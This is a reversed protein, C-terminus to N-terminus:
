WHTIKNKRLSIEQFKCETCVRSDYVNWSFWRLEKGLVVVEVVEVVVMLQRM